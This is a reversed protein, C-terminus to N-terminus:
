GAKPEDPGDDKPGAFERAQSEVEDLKGHLGELNATAKAALNGAVARLEQAEGRLKRQEVLARDLQYRTVYGKAVLVEGLLQDGSSRLKTEIADRLQDRTIFGWKVLLHGVSQTLPDRKRWFFLGM